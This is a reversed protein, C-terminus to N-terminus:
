DQAKLGIIYCVLTTAIVSVIRWFMPVMDMRKVMLFAIVFGLFGFITAIGDFEFDM